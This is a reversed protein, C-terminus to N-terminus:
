LILGARIGINSMPATNRDDITEQCPITPDRVYLWASVLSEMQQRSLDVNGINRRIQVGGDDLISFRLAKDNSQDSLAKSNRPNQLADM